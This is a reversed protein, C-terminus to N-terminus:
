AEKAVCTKSSGGAIPVLKQRVTKAYSVADPRTAKAKAGSACRDLITIGSTKPQPYWREQM